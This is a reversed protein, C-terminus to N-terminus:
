RRSRLQHGAQLVVVAVGADDRSVALVLDNVNVVGGVDSYVTQVSNGRGELEGDVVDSNDVALSAEVAERVGHGGPGARLQTSGKQVCM